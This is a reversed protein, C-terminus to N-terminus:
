QGAPARGLKVTVSLRRGDRYVEVKIEDGPRKRALIARLREPTTVPAGDIAVIIDGGLRWSDGGVIM